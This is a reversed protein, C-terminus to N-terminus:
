GSRLVLLGFWVLFTIENVKEVIADNNNNDNNNYKQRTKGMLTLQYDKELIQTVALRRLDEPSQETNQIIEAISYNLHDHNTRNRVRGAEKRDSDAKHEM